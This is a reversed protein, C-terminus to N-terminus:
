QMLLLATLYNCSSVVKPKTPHLVGVIFRHLVAIMDTQEGLHRYEAGMTELIKLAWPPLVAPLTFMVNFLTCAFARRVAKRDM